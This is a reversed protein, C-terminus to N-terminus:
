KLLGASLLARAAREHEARSIMDRRAEPRHWIQEALRMVIPEQWHMGRMPSYGTTIDCAILVLAVDRVKEDDTM